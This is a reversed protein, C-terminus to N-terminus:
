RACRAVAGLGAHDPAGARNRKNEARRRRFFDKLVQACEDALVGDIIQVCHNLRADTPIRYLTKCAGAKPDTTGYILRGLRANILAGACMPCPELTVALSCDSLRWEGLTVGAESIALLEAHGVPDSTAERNNAAEAIIQEGRYVVAGVPVEGRAGAQEALEIARRMMRVDIASPAAATRTTSRSEPMSEGSRPHHIQGAWQRVLQRLSRIM